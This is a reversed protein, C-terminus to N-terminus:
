QPQTMITTSASSSPPMQQLQQHRNDNPVSWVRQSQDINYTQGKWWRKDSTHGPRGCYYCVINTGEEKFAKTQTTARITVRTVREKAQNSTTETTEKERKTKEKTINGKLGHVGGFNNDVYVNRYYEEVKKAADLFNPKASNETLLLHSRIDGQNQFQRIFEGPAQTVNNWTPRM